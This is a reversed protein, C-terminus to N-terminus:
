TRSSKSRTSWTRPCGTQPFACGGAADKRMTHEKVFITEESTPESAPERLLCYPEVRATAVTSPRNKEPCHVNFLSPLTYWEHHWAFPCCVTKAMVLEFTRHTHSTHTQAHKTLIHACSPSCTAMMTEVREEEDLEKARKKDRGGSGYFERLGVWLRRHSLEEGTVTSECRLQTM